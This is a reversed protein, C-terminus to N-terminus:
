FEIIATNITTLTYAYGGNPPFIHESIQEPDNGRVLPSCNESLSLSSFQEKRLFSLM